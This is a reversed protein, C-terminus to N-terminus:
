TEKMPNSDPIGDLTTTALTMNGCMSKCTPKDFSRKVFSRAVRIAGTADVDSCIPCEDVKLQKATADINTELRMDAPAAKLSTKLVQMQLCTVACPSSQQDSAAITSIAVVLLKM